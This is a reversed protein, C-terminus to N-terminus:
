LDLKRIKGIQHNCSANLIINARMESIDPPILVSKMTENKLVKSNDKQLNVIRVNACKHIM